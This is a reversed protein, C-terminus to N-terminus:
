MKIKTLVKQIPIEPHLDQILQNRHILDSHSTWDHIFICKAEINSNEAMSLVTHRM